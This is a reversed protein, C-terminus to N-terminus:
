VKIQNFEVLSHTNIGYVIKVFADGIFHIVFASNQEQNCVTHVM